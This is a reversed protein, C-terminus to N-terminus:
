GHIPTTPNSATKTATTTDRAATLKAQAIALLTPMSEPPLELQSAIQDPPIGADRLALAVAYIVPLRLLPPGDTPTM